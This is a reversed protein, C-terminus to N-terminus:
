SGKLATFPRKFIMLIGRVTGLTVAPTASVLEWGHWGAEYMFKEYDKDGALSKLPNASSKPHSEYYDTYYEWEKGEMVMEGRM